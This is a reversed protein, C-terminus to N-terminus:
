PSMIVERIVRDISTMLVLDAEMAERVEDLLRPFGPDSVLAPGFRSALVLELFIRFVQRRRQAEDGSLQPVRALLQARLSREAIVEPDPAPFGQVPRADTPRGKLPTAGRSRLQTVATELRRVSSSM